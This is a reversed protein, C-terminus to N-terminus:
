RARVAFRQGCGVPVEVGDASTEWHPSLGIGLHDLDAQARATSTRFPVTFLLLSATAALAVDGRRTATTREVGDAPRNRPAAFAGLVALIRVGTRAYTSPSGGALDLSLRDRWGPDGLRHRRLPAAALPASGSRLAAVLGWAFVVFGAVGTEALVQLFNNHANEHAARPFVQLLEPSSFEGSRQYFQGLGIGFVPNTALMRMSTRVMEVRVEAAVSSSKQNGRMPAYALLGIAAAVLGAGAIGVVMRTRRDAGAQAACAVTIALALPGAFLAARSGSLWVGLLLVATAIFWARALGRGAIGLAAAVFALMLFHSGAANVDGYHINIRTTRVHQALLRWFEDSRWASTVLANVNM